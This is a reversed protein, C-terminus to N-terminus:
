LCTKGRLGINYTQAHLCMLSLSIQGERKDRTTQDLMEQRNELIEQLAAQLKRPLICDEDGLQFASVVLSLRMYSWCM